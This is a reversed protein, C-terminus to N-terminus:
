AADRLAETEEGAIEDGFYAAIVMQALEPVAAAFDQPQARTLASTVAAEIAGVMFTATVPPPSHRSETERRASDVALTLREFVELRKLLAPGGAVHVEVLLGRAFTPRACVFEALGSLVAVLSQHWSPEALAVDRLTSYLREVEFEYAAAYCEAKSAFHKYFQQRHGGYRDITDQVTADRYGREGCAEIAAGMIRERLRTIEGTQSARIRALEVRPTRARRATSDGRGAM